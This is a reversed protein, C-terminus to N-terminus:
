APTLVRLETGRVFEKVTTRYALMHPAVIHAKLAEVSDWKEVIVVRDEGLKLQAALGSDIDVAPGYEICGVEASVPIMVKRFEALFAARTGPALEITAIVHIM